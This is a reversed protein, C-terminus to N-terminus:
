LLMYDMLILRRELPYIKKKLSRMKMQSMKRKTTQKNKKEEVNDEDGANNEVPTVSSEEGCAVLVSGIAFLLVILLTYKKM